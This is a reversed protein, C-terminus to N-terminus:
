GPIPHFGITRSRAVVIGEAGYGVLSARRISVELATDRGDRSMVLVRGNDRDNILIHDYTIAAEPDLGTTLSWYTADAQKALDIFKITQHDAGAVVAIYGDTDLVRDTPEGVWGIGEGDASATPMVRPRGDSTYAVLMGSRGQPPNRQECGAGSATGLSYGLRDWSLTGSRYDYAEVRYTCGAPGPQAQVFLYRDNDVAFQTRATRRRWSGCTM